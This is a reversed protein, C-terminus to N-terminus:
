RKMYQENAKVASNGINYILENYFNMQDIPTANPNAKEYATICRNLLAQDFAMSEVGFLSQAFYAALGPDVQSVQWVENAFRKSWTGQCWKMFTQQDKTSILNAMVNGVATAFANKAQFDSFETQYYYEYLKKWANFDKNYIAAQLQQALQKQNLDLQRSKQMERMEETELRPKNLTEAGISVPGTMGSGGSDQGTRYTGTVMSNYADADRSLQLTQDYSRNNARAWRGEDGRAYDANVHPDLTENDTNVQENFYGQANSQSDGKNSGFRDKSQNYIDGTAKNAFDSKIQQNDADTIAINGGGGSPLPQNLTGNGKDYISYKGPYKGFIASADHLISEIAQKSEGAM